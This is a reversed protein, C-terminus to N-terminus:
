ELLFIKSKIMNLYAAYSPVSVRNGRGYVIDDVDNGEDKHVRCVVLVGKDGHVDDSATQEEVSDM